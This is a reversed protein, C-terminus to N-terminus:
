VNLTAELLIDILAYGSMSLWEGLSIPLPYHFLPARTSATLFMMRAAAGPIEKGIAAIRFRRRFANWNRNPCLIPNPVLFRCFCVASM